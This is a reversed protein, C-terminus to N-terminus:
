SRVSARSRKGARETAYANCPDLARCADPPCNHFFSQSAYLNQIEGLELGAGRAGLHQRPQARIYDLNLRRLRTLLSAPHHGLFRADIRIVEHQALLRLM